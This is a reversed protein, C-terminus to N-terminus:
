RRSFMEDFYSDIEYLKQVPLIISIQELLMKAIAVIHEMSELRDFVKQKTYIYKLTNAVQKYNEKNIYYVLNHRYVKLQKEKVEDRTPIDADIIQIINLNEFDVDETEDEYIRDMISQQDAEAEDYNKFPVKLDDLYTDLAGEKEEAFTEWYGIGDPHMDERWTRGYIEFTHDLLIIEHEKDDSTRYKIKLDYEVEIKENYDPTEDWEFDNYM